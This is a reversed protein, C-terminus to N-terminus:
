VMQQQQKLRAAPAASTSTTTTINDRLMPHLPPDETSHVKGNPPPVIGMEVFKNWFLTVCQDIHKSQICVFTLDEATLSEYIPHVGLEEKNYQLIEVYPHSGMMWYCDVFSGTEEFQHLTVLGLAVDTDDAEEKSHILDVYLMERCLPIPEPFRHRIARFMLMAKDEPSLEMEDDQRGTEIDFGNDDEESSYYDENFHDILSAGPLEVGGDAVLTQLRNGM